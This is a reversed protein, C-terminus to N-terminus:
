ISWYIFLYFFFLFFSSSYLIIIYLVVYPIFNTFLLRYLPMICTCASCIYASRCVHLVHYIFQTILLRSLLVNQLNGELPLCMSDGVTYHHFRCHTSKQAGTGSFTLWLDGGSILERMSSSFYM